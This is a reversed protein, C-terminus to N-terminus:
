DAPQPGDWDTSNSKTGRMREARQLTHLFAEAWTQKEEDSLTAWNAPPRVFLPMRRSPDADEGLTM